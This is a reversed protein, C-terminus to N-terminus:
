EHVEYYECADPTCETSVKKNHIYKTFRAIVEVKSQSLAYTKWCM